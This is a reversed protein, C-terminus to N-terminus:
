SDRAVAAVNLKGAKEFKLTVVIEDGAKIQKKLDFLMIHFGGPKLMVSKNAPLEVGSAPHMMMGSDTKMDMEGSDMSDASSGADKASVTEHLEARGAVDKEVSAEILKDGTASKVTLYIAGTSAKPATSRTWVDTLEPVAPKSSEAKKDDGCGVVPLVVLLTIAALLSIRAPKIISFKM